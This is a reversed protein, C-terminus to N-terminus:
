SFRQIKIGAITVDQVGDIDERIADSVVLAELAGVAVINFQYLAKWSGCSGLQYPAGVDSIRHFVVYPKAASSPAYGAYVGGTIEAIANLRAFVAAHASM